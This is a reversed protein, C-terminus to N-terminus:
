AIGLVEDPGGAEVDAVFRFFEDAVRQPCDIEMLHCEGQLFVTRAGRTNMIAYMNSEYFDNFFPDDTGFLYGVPISLGKLFEDCEELSDWVGESAGAYKQIVGAMALAKEPDAKDMGIAQVEEMKKALGEQPKRLGAGMMQAPDGSNMMEFWKNDTQGKLHPALFFSALAKVMEPHNKAMYWGPTTSHCKGFHIFREIGMLQCFEYEDKGWQKAWNVSGDEDFEDAPGDFRMILGYVHYREAIAEVIDMFTYFFFGPFVVVEDHEEGRECYTLEAGYSTTVSKAEGKVKFDEM